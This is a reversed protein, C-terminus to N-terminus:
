EDTDVLVPRYAPAIAVSGMVRGQYMRIMSDCQDTIADISQDGMRFNPMVAKAKKWRWGEAAASNLDWTPEYYIDTISRGDADARKAMGVLMDLEQASLAPHSDAATMTYLRIRASVADM